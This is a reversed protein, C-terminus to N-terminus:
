VVICFILRSKESGKNSRIGFIGPVNETPGISYEDRNVWISLNCAMDFSAIYTHSGNIYTVCSGINHSDFRLSQWSASM